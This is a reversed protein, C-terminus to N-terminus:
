TMTSDFMMNKMKYAEDGTYTETIGTPGIKKDTVKSTVEASHMAIMKGNIGIAGTAKTLESLHGHPYNVSSSTVKGMDLAHAALANVVM